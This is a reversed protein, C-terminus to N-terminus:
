CIIRECEGAEWRSPLELRECTGATSTKIHETETVALVTVDIKGNLAGPNPMDDGAAFLILKTFREEMHNMEFYRLGTGSM